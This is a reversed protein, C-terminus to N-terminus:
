HSFAQIRSHSFTKRHIAAMILAEISYHKLTKRHTVAMM